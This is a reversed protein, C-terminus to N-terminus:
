KATIVIEIRRNNSRGEATNNTAIPRSAAFGIAVLRSKDIGNKILYDLVAQSRQQSLQRNYDDSGTNDTHGEVRFSYAACEQMINVSKALEATAETSLKSEGSDFLVEMGAVVKDLKQQCSIAVADQKAERIDADIRLGKPLTEILYQIPSQENNKLEGQITLTTDLMGIKVHNFRQPLTMLTELVGGWWKPLKVINLDTELSQGETIYSNVLNKEQENAVKGAVVFTNKTKEINFNAIEILEAVVTQEEDTPTTHQASHLNSDVDSVFSLAKIQNTLQQKLDADGAITGDLAVSTKDVKFNIGAYHPNAAILNAVNTEIHNQIKTLSCCKALLFLCIPAVVLLLFLTRFM